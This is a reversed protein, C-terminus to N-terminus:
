VDDLRVLHANAMTDLRAALAETGPVVALDAARSRRHYQQAATGTLLWLSAPASEHHFDLDLLDRGGRREAASASRLLADWSGPRYRALQSRLEWPGSGIAALSQFPSCEAALSAGFSAGNNVFGISM